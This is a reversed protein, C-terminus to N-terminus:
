AMANCPTNGDNFGGCMWTAYTCICTCPGVIGKNRSHLVVHLLIVLGHMHVSAAALNTASSWWVALQITTLPQGKIARAERLGNITCVFLDESM